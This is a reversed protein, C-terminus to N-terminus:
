RATVQLFQNALLGITMPVPLLWTLGSFVREGRTAAVGSPFLGILRALCGLGVMMLIAEGLLLWSMWPAAGSEAYTNKIIRELLAAFAMTAATGCVLLQASRNEPHRWLLFLGAALFPIPVTLLYLVTSGPFPSVALTLALTAISAIAATAGIIWVLKKVPRM